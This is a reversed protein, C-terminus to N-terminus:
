KKSKEEKAGKEKTEGEKAAPEKKKPQWEPHLADGETEALDFERPQFGDDPRLPIPTDRVVEIEVMAIGASLMGIEKAARYSLDIMKGRGYPGRDTVRVVTSLGNRLNTVKLRTGFPLTRHACTLSDHHVRSGDSARAGTARRSYYTAKGRQQALSPTCALM